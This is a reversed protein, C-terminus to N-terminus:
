AGINGMCVYKIETYEDLGFRSGERGLGSEKFGGFPAVETSILGENAGVLGYELAESVRWVRGQDETYFYAALGAETNNAAAIAEEETEFKYLPAVPGFTENNTIDMEATVGSLVTPQYFNAGHESGPGGGVLVSAGKSVADEVQAHVKAVGGANIMPGITVGEEQGKGMRLAEVAACLKKAFADYVGAQVYIRNTCVCTQGANRFKSGMCGAVAKDLDADDFVLFPAHGGLELSVKKVTSACQAMLLKGVATSGTFSLKRVKPNTALETGIAASEERPGTVVNLVGPPVGARTALEALALASLPTDESPKIVVTCGAALAPGAKRTIMAAPFNWPTILACVGVPERLAMLRRGPANQPIVEGYMRRSEEAYYELFAAAYAIEGRAEALPKGCEATLIAALDDAHEHMLEYWKRLITSREQRDVDFKEDGVRPHEVPM